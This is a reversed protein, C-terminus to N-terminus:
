RSAAATSLRRRAATGARSRALRAGSPDPGGAARPHRHARCPPRACSLRRRQLLRTSPRTSSSRPAAPHWRSSLRRRLRAQGQGTMRSRGRHLRSWGAPAPKILARCSSTTPASASASGRLSGCTRGARAVKMEEAIDRRELPRFSEVLQFAIGRAIGTVQRRAQPAVVPKLLTEIQISTGIPRTDVVKDRARRDTARRRAACARGCRTKAPSWRASRRASGACRATPPSRSIATARPRRLADARAEFEAALSRRRPTKRSKADEGGASQDATFRFGEVRRRSPRRRARAGTPSM